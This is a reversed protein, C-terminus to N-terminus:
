GATIPEPPERQFAGFGEADAHDEVFIDYRLAREYEQVIFGTILATRERRCRAKAVFQRDIMDAAIPDGDFIEFGGRHAILAAKRDATDGMGVAIHHLHLAVEAVTAIAVDVHDARLTIVPAVLDSRHGQDIHAATVAGACQEVVARVVCRRIEEGGIVTEAGINGGPHEAEIPVAGRAIGGLVGGGVHGNGACRQQLVTGSGIHRQQLQAFRWRCLVVHVVAAPVSRVRRGVGDGGDM